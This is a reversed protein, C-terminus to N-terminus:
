LGRNEKRPGVINSYNGSLYFYLDPRNKLLNRRMLKCRNEVDNDPVRIGHSRCAIELSKVCYHALNLKQQQTKKDSPFQFLGRAAMANLALPNIRKPRQRKVTTTTTTTPTTPTTTTRM